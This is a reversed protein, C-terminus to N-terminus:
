NGEILKVIAYERLAADSFFGRVGVNIELCQLIDELFVGRRRFASRRRRRRPRTRRSGDFARRIGLDGKKALLFRLINGDCLFMKTSERCTLDHIIEKGHICIGQFLM